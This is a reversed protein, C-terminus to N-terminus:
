NYFFTLSYSGSYMGIPNSEMSGIHLTCGIKITNKKETSGGETPIDVTWSTLYMANIGNQHYLYVTNKPFIVSFNTSQSESIDFIAPSVASEKLIISGNTIRSGQPTLIIDGGGGVPTFKGFNLQSVETTITLPVIEANATTSITTQGFIACNVILITILILIKILRM